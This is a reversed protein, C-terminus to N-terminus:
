GIPVDGESPAYIQGARLDLDYGEMISRQNYYYLTAAITQFPVIAIQVFFGALQGVVPIFSLVQSIAGILAYGLFGIVIIFGWTRWFKGKVLQRSRGLASAYGSDELITVPGILLFWATFIIGPILFFLYGFTAALGALFGAVMYAFSKKLGLRLCDGPIIERGLFGDSAAKILGGKSIVIGLIMPIFLVVTTIGLIAPFADSSSGSLLGSIIAIIIMLLIPLYGLLTIIYFKVFNNKFLELSRDLLEGLGMPVFETRNEM